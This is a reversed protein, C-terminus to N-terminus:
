SKITSTIPTQSSGDGCHCPKSFDLPAALGNTFAPPAALASHGSSGSRRALSVACRSNCPRLRLPAMRYNTQSPCRHHQAPFQALHAWGYRLIAAWRRGRSYTRERGWGSPPLRGSGAGVAPHGLVRWLPPPSESIATEGGVSCMILWVRRFAPARVAWDTKEYNHKKDKKECQSFGTGKAVEVPPCFLHKKCNQNKPARSAKM